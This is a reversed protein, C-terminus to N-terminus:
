KKQMSLVVEGLYFGFKYMKSKNLLVKDDIQYMWDDFKVHYTTGDVDLALVYKWRLANGAIEGLAEGVVDGATGIYRGESKKTITWVRRSKTGDSYSFDEELTGVNDRWTGKMDVVFRKIIKGSRNQFYGHAVLPGNLYEELKLKPLENKYDSVQVSSCGLLFLFGSTIVSFKPIM